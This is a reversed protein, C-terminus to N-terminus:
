YVRQECLFCRGCTGVETNRTAGEERPNAGRHSNLVRGRHKRELYLSCVACVAHVGYVCDIVAVQRLYRNGRISTELEYARSGCM